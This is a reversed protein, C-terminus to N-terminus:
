KKWTQRNPNDDDEIENGQSFFFITNIGQKILLRKRALSDDQTEEGQIPQKTRLKNTRKTPPEPTKGDQSDDEDKKYNTM